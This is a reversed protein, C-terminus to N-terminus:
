TKVPRDCESGQVMWMSMAILGLVTLVLVNNDVGLM